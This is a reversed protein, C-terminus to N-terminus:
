GLHPAPALTIYFNSSNSHVGSSAMAIVGPVTHRCIFNEDPFYRAPFSSHGGRGTGEKWDGGFVAFGRQVRFIHSGVYGEQPPRACLSLFNGVTVPVIDDALEFIVRSLNPNQVNPQENSSTGEGPSDFSFDMFARARARGHLSDVPYPPPAAREVKEVERHYWDLHKAGRFLSASTHFYSSMLQRPRVLGRRM